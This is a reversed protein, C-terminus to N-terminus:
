TILRDDQVNQEDTGETSILDPPYEINETLPVDHKNLVIVEPVHNKQTLKTLSRGHPIVYYSIDSDVQYQRSPDDKHLFENPPYISSDDIGEYNISGYGEIICSSNDVFVVKLAPQEVYKHSYSKVGTMSKSCGSDLYWIPEKIYREFPSENSQSSEAVVERKIYIVRNHESTSHDYSGRIECETYNRYDDPRNDNFGYHTYPPFPKVKAKLIQKSSFAYQYPQAKYNKSRKLSAIYM